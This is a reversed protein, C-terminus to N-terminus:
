NEWARKKTKVENMEEKKGCSHEEEAMMLWGITRTFDDAGSRSGSKRKQQEPKQHKKRRETM